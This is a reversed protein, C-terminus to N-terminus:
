IGPVRWPVLATNIESGRYGVLSGNGPVGEATSGCIWSM